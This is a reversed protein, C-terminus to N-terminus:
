YNKISNKIENLIKQLNKFNIITEVSKKEPFDLKFRKIEEEV